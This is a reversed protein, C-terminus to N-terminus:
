MSFGEFIGVLAPSSMRKSPFILPVARFLTSFAISNIFDTSMQYAPALQPFPLSLDNSIAPLSAIPLWSPPSDFHRCDRSARNSWYRPLWPPTVHRRTSWHPPTKWFNLDSEKHTRWTWRNHAHARKLAVSPRRNFSPGDVWCPESSNERFNVGNELLNRDDLVYCTLQISKGDKPTM